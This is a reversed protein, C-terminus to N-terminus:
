GITRVSVTSAVFGGDDIIVSFDADYGWTDRYHYDWATTRTNNFRMKRYPAGLHALVESAPMGRRIANFADDNLAPKKSYVYVSERASVDAGSACAAAPVAVIVSLMAALAVRDLSKLSLM